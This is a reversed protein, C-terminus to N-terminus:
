PKEWAGSRASRFVAEIAALNAISDELPTPPAAGKLIARCFLDNQITYQNAVPFERLTVGGGFLDAGTDTFVRCPRDPPANFPIEIEIRSRTGLVQVRQYAVHQVGCTFVAQGSPFDLLASTLRDVGFEPDRDVLSVV